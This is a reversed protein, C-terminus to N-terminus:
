TVSKALAFQIERRRRDNVPSPQTGAVYFELLEPPQDHLIWLCKEETLASPLRLLQQEVSRVSV